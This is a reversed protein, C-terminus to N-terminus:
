GWHEWWWDALPWWGAHASRLRAEERTVWQAEPVERLDPRLPLAEPLLVAYVQLYNDGEELTGAAHGRPVTIREYGVPELAEPDIQLGVEEAVERVATERATIDGPEGKGGPADWGARSANRVLVMRPEAEATRILVVAAGAKAREHPSAVVDLVHPLSVAASLGDVVRALPREGKRKRFRLGSDRLRRALETGSVETAGAAVVEAYREQPIDYHDGEFSRRPIGAGAAFAHLEALSTDSAVHSWLRGHAEWRPPDVLVTM